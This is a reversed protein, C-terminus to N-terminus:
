NSGHDHSPVKDGRNIVPVDVELTKGSEFVLTVPVTGGAELPAKLGMLMVHVGGPKMEIPQGKALPLPGDVPRMKMVGGENIHVHIEVKKAAPSRAAVLRDPPGDTMVSVFAGGAKQSKTTAYAFPHKAMIEAMASSAFLSAALAALAIRKM